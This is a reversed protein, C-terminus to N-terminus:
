KKANGKSTKALSKSATDMMAGTIAGCINQLRSMGSGFTSLVSQACIFDHFISLAYETKNM